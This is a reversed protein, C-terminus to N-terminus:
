GFKGLGHTAGVAFGWTISGGDHGAGGGGGGGRDIPITATNVLILGFTKDAGDATFDSQVHFLVNALCLSILAFRRQFGSVDPVTCGRFIVVGVRGGGMAMTRGGLLFVGGGGPGVSTGVAVVLVWLGVAVAVAATFGSAAVAVVVVRGVLLVVWGTVIGGVVGIRGVVLVLRVGLLLVLLFVLVVCGDFPLATKLTSRRRKPGNRVFHLLHHVNSFKVFHSQSFQKTIVVYTFM